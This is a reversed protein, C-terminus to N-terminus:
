RAAGDREEERIDLPRGLQLVPELLAVALDHVLVPTQELVRDLRVVPQDDVPLRFGKERDEWPHAVRHGGGGVRLARKRRVLPRVTRLDLHPHPKM